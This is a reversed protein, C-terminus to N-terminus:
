SPASSVAASTLAVKSRMTLGGGPIAMGRLTSNLATLSILVGSWYVTSNLNDSGRGDLKMIDAIALPHFTM